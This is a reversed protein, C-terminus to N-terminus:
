VGLGKDTTITIYLWVKPKIVTIRVVEVYKGWVYLTTLVLDALSKEQIHNIKIHIPM